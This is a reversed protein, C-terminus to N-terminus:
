FNQPPLNENLAQITDYLARNFNGQVHSQMALAKSIPMSFM